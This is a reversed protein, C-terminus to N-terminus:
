VIIKKAAQVLQDLTCGSPLSQKKLWSEAKMAILEWEDQQSSYRARLLSVALVTAWVNASAGKCEIPCASELHSLSKGVLQAFASNLAWSGNIQQAAILDTIGAAGVTTAAAPFQMAGKSVVGSASRYGPGSKSAITPMGANFSAPMPPPPAMAAASPMLTPPPLLASEEELEMLEQMLDDDDEKMSMRRVPVALADSVESACLMDGELEDMFNDATLDFAAGPMQMQMFM